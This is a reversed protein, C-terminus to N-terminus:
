VIMFIDIEINMAGYSNRDIEAGLEIHKVVAKFCMGGDMLHAIVENKVRPVYGLKANDANRVLIALNDHINKPERVLRLEDGENLNQALKKIGRAHMLGAIYTSLVFIDKSFPKAITLNSNNLLREALFASSTTVSLENKKKPM